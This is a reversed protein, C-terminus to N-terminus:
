ATWFDSKADVEEPTTVILQNETFLNTNKPKLPAVWQGLVVAFPVFYFILSVYFARCIKYFIRAFKHFTSRSAFSIDKSRREVDPLKLMIKKIKFGMLADFYLSTVKM